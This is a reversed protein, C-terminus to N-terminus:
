ENSRIRDEYDILIDTSFNNLVLLVGFKCHSCVFIPEPFISRHTQRSNYYGFNWYYFTYNNGM